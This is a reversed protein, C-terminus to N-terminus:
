VYCLSKITNKAVIRDSNLGAKTQYDGLAADCGYGIKGPYEVGKPDCGHIYLAIQAFTALWQTEQFKVHRNKLVSETRLGYVGDIDLGANYDKNLALQLCQVILKKTNPGVIGDVTYSTGCFKNGEAQGKKILLKTYSDQSTSSLKLFSSVEYESLEKSPYPDGLKNTSIISGVTASM